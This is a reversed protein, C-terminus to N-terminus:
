RVGVFRIPAWVVLVCGCLILARACFNEDRGAPGAGACRSRGLVAQADRCLARGQAFIRMGVRLGRRCLALAGACGACGQVIRAGACFITMGVRLGRRCLALAGACGACGQVIRAGACFITMGVRLDREQAAQPPPIQKEKRSRARRRNDVSGLRRVFPSRTKGKRRQARQTEANREEAKKKPTLFAGAGVARGATL